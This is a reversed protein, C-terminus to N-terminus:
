VVEEWGPFVVAVVEGMLLGCELDGLENPGLNLGWKDVRASFLKAVVM